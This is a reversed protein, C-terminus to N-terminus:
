KIKPFLERSLHFPRLIGVRTIQRASVDLFVPKHTKIEWEQCDYVRKIKGPTGGEWIKMWVADGPRQDELQDGEKQRWRQLEESYM